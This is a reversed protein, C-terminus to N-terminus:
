RSQTCTGLDFRAREGFERWRGVMQPGCTLVRRPSTMTIGSSTVKSQTYLRMLAGNYNVWGRNSSPVNYGVGELRAEPFPMFAYARGGPPICTIPAGNPDEIGVVVKVQQGNISDWATVKPVTELGSWRPAVCYMTKNYIEVYEVDDRCGELPGLAFENDLLPRLGADNNCSLDRGFANGILALILFLVNLIAIM